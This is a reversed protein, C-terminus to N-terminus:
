PNEGRSIREYSAVCELAFALKRRAMELCWEAAIRDSENEASDVFAQRESIVGEWTAAHNRELQARM